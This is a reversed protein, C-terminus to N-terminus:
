TKKKPRKWNPVSKQEVRSIALAGAEVDRTVTTGAAITAGDAVRVPAVFQTDSGIFVDDGIITKHKRAGDYNCTITGAGVNVNAGLEADGIYSLHNAKSGHGISSKKVEVFNGIHVDEALVTGPRLRAFPGIISHPGVVADQIV